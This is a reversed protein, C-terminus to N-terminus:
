RNAATCEIKINNSCIEGVSCKTPFPDCTHGDPCINSKLAHDGVAGEPCAQEKECRECCGEISNGVCQYGQPCNASFLPDGDEILYEVTGNSLIRIGNQRTCISCLPASLVM